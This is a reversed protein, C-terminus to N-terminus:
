TNLKQVFLADPVASNEKATVTDPCIKYVAASKQDHSSHYEKVLKETLPQQYYGPAYKEVIKQLARTKETVDEVSVVSGFLIVSMYSTDAACPMVDTVTGYERFISFCVSPNKKLIETKRGSALGHFYIESGTWVFNVPVAYPGDEGIMSLTGVRMNLLFDEIKKKDQCIRQTYRIIHQM